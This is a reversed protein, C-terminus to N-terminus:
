ATSINQKYCKDLIVSRKDDIKKLEACKTENPIELKGLVCTAFDLEFIKNEKYSNMLCAVTSVDRKSISNSFAEEARRAVDVVVINCNLNEIEINKPNMNVNDLSLISNDTVYNRLCYDTELAILTENNDFAGRFTSIFKDGAVQCETAIEILYEKFDNRFSSLRSKKEIEPFSNAAQISTITLILDLAKERKLLETTLCKSANPLVEETLHQMDVRLIRNLEPWTLRCKPPEKSMPFDIDLNRESKLYRLTCESDTSGDLEYFSDPYKIAKFSCIKVCILVCFIVFTFNSNM